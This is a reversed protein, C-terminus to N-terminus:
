EDWDEGQDDGRDYDRSDYGRDDYGRDDYYGDGDYPAWGQDGYQYERVCTGTEVEIVRVVRPHHFRHVRYYSDYATLSVSTRNAYPDFYTFGAPAANALTAGLFLGGIFGGIVAGANSRRVYYVSGQPRYNYTRYSQGHGGKYRARGHGRAEAVPVLTSALVGALVLSTIWRKANTHLKM